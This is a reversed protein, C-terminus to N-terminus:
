HQKDDDDDDARLRWLGYRGEEMAVVFLRAIVNWYWRSDSLDMNEQSSRATEELWRWNEFIAIKTVHGTDSCPEVQIYWIGRWDSLINSTSIYGFYSKWYPPQGGHQIEYKKKYILM